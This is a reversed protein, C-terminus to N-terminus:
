FSRYGHGHPSDSGNAPGKRVVSSPRSGHWATAPTPVDERDPVRAAQPTPAHPGPPQVPHPAPPDAEPSQAQSEDPGEGMQFFAMLDRLAQVQGAVQVATSALEESAAATRQTVQDVQSMAKNMQGVGTSQEQSAVVVEQVMEATKRITPVMELLVQGAHEATKVSSTAVGGIEKAAEQSREALKRVETAVVAFGRGHEGARAAEIAANLALLNTQYAIEDVIAIKQAIAKMAEVTDRVAKGGAEAEQAGKLIAKGAQRSNDANQSISAGMQELSATTEEVAAAQESTGQSLTQAAGSMQASVSSLSEAGAHIEGIIERLKESMSNMSELLLGTEDRRNVRVSGQIRGAAISQALQVVQRIPRTIGGTLFTALGLSLLVALIALCLTFTTAGQADAVVHRSYEAIRQKDKEIQGEIEVIMRGARTDSQDRSMRVADKVLGSTMLGAVEEFIKSYEQNQAALAELESLRGTEGRASEAELSTQILRAIEEGYKKHQGLYDLDQSLLYGKEAKLQNLMAVQIDALREQGEALRAMREMESVTYALQRSGVIGVTGVALALALFGAYLKKGITIDGLFRKV